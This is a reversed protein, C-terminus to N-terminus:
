ILAHHLLLDHLHLLEAATPITWESTAAAADVQECLHQASRRCM